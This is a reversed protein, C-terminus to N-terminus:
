LIDFGGFFDGDFFGGDTEGSDSLEETEFPESLYVGGAASGGRSGHRCHHRRGFLQSPLGPQKQYMQMTVRALFDPDQLSDDIGDENHDIFTHGQQQAKQGLYLGFRVRGEPSMQALVENAEHLYKDDGRPNVDSAKQGM